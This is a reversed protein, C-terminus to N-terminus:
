LMIIVNFSTVSRNGTNAVSSFMESFPFDFILQVSAKVAETELSLWLGTTYVYQRRLMNLKFM